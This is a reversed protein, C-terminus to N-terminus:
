NSASGYHTARIQAVSPTAEPVISYATVVSVSLWSAAARKSCYVLALMPLRGASTSSWSIRLTGTMSSTM